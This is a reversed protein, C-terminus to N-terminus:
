KTSYPYKIPLIRCSSHRRARIQHSAALGPHQQWGIRRTKQANTTWVSSLHPCEVLQLSNIARQLAALLDPGKRSRAVEIHIFNSDEHFFVIQYLAGSRGRVPLAGTADSHARDRVDHMIRQELRESTPESSKDSISKRPPKLEKGPPMYTAM